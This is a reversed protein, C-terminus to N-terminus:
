YGTKDLSLCLTYKAEPKRELYLRLLFFLVCSSPNWLLPNWLYEPSCNVLTSLLSRAYFLLGKWKCLYECHVLSQSYLSISLITKQNRIQDVNLDNQTSYIYLVKFYTYCFLFWPRQRIGRTRWPVRYLSREIVNQTIHPKVRFSSPTLNIGFTSVIFVM